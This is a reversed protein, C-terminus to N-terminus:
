HYNARSVAQASQGLPRYAAPMLAHPASRAAVTALCLDRSATTSFASCVIQREAEVRAQERGSHSRQVAGAVMAYFAALMTLAVLLGAVAFVRQWGVLGPSAHLPGPRMRTAREAPRSMAPSQHIM